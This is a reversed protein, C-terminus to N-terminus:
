EPKGSKAVRAEELLILYNDGHCRKPKCYCVLDKGRLYELWAPDRQARERADIMHKDCAQDRTQHTSVPHRNGYATGRDICVAGAPYGDRRMNLVRGIRM